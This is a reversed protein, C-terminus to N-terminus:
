LALTDKYDGWVSAAVSVIRNSADHANLWNHFNAWSSVARMFPQPNPGSAENYVFNHLTTANDNGDARAKDLYEAFTLPAAYGSKSADDGVLVMVPTNEPLRLSPVAPNDTDITITANTNDRVLGTVDLWEDVTVDIIRGLEAADILDPVMYTTEIEHKLATFHESLDVTMGIMLHKTKVYPLNSHEPTSTDIIERLINEPITM